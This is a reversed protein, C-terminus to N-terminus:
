SITANLVMFNMSLAQAIAGATINRIYVRFQNANVQDVGVIYSDANGGTMTLIIVSNLGVSTNNVMFGVTTNAALSAAHTLIKGSAANLTVATSKSTIQTVVGGATCCFRGNTSVDGTAHTIYFHEAGPKYFGTLLATGYWYGGGTANFNLRHETGAGSAGITLDDSDVYMDGAVRFSNLDLTAYVFGGTKDRFSHLDSSYQIRTSDVSFFGINVASGTTYSQFRITANGLGTNVYLDTNSGSVAQPGFNHSIGGINLRGNASYFEPAGGGLIRFKLIETVGLGFSLQENDPNHYIGQMYGINAGGAGVFAIKGGNYGSASSGITLARIVNTTAINNITGPVTAGSTLTAIGNVALEGALSLGTATLTSVANGGVYLQHQGGTIYSYFTSGAANLIQFEGTASKARLVDFQGYSTSIVPVTFSASAAALTLYTVAQAANRFALSDASFYGAGSGALIDLGLAASSGAGKLTLSSYTAAPGPSASINSNGAAPAVDVNGTINLTGDAPVIPDLLAPVDSAILLKDAGFYPQKDFEVALPVSEFRVRGSAAAKGIGFGFSWDNSYGEVRGRGALTSFYAQADPSAIGFGIDDAGTGHFWKYDGAPSWLGGPGINDVALSDSDQFPIYTETEEDWRYAQETSDDIYIRNPDGPDPFDAVTDYVAPSGEDPYVDLAVGMGNGSLDYIDTEGDGRAM